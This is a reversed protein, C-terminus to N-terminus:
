MFVIAVISGRGDFKVTQVHNLIQNTFIQNTFIQKLYLM